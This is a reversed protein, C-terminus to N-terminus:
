AGLFINLSQVTPSAKARFIASYVHLTKAAQWELGADNRRRYKVSKRSKKGRHAGCKKRTKGVIKNAASMM